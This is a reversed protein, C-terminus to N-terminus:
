RFSVFIEESANQKENIRSAQNAIAAISLDSNALKIIDASLPKESTTAPLETTIKPAITEIAEPLPAPSDIQTPLPAPINPTIPPQPATQPMVVPNTPVDNVEPTYTPQTPTPPISMNSNSFYNFSSSKKKMMDVIDQRRTEDSQNLKQDLVKSIQNDESLIDEAKQADNYADSTMANGNSRVSWGKSDVIEALYDFRRQAENQSIDKTLQTETIKPVTIEILSEIGDPDWKRERPKLFFSAMAALYIEMPQDKRLPLALAGFFIMIPLPIIALVIFLQALGWALAGAMVVIIIYIFQRFSFPGILKDDAEVDQPVKYKSM